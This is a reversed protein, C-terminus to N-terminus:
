PTLVCVRETPFFLQSFGFRKELWQMTKKSYFSVHTPDQRYYWANFDVSDECFLTMFIWVGSPSLSKRLQHFDEAPRRFHEIVETAFIADYELELVSREPWFCPDYVETQTYGDEKLRHILAPGPGGGFDLIRANLPLRKKIELYVPELFRRYGQDDVSNEHFLYRAREDEPSLQLAPDLFRLDCVSCHFYDHPKVATRFSRCDAGGCLTCNM